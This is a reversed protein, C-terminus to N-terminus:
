RTDHHTYIASANKAEEALLRLFRSYLVQTESHDCRIEGDIANIGHRVSSRDKGAMTAIHKIPTNRGIFLYHWVIQRLRCLSRMRSPSLIMDTHTDSALSMTYILHKYLQNM